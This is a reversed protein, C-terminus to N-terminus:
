RFLKMAFYANSGQNNANIRGRWINDEDLVEPYAKLFEPFEMGSAEYASTVLYGPLIGDPTEVKPGDILFNMSWVLLTDYNMWPQLWGDEVVIPHEFIKQINSSNKCGALVLICAITTLLRITKM